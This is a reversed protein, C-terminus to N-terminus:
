ASKWNKFRIREFGQGSLEITLSQVCLLVPKRKWMRPQRMKWAFWIATWFEIQLSPIGWVVGRWPGSSDDMKPPTLNDEPVMHSGYGATKEEWHVPWLPTEMLCIHPSPSSATFYFYAGPSDQEHTGEPGEPAWHTRYWEVQPHVAAVRM